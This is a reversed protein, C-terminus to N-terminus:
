GKRALTFYWIEMDLTTAERKPSSPFMELNKIHLFMKSDAIKEVMSRLGASSGSLSINIPRWELMFNSAPEAPKKDQVAAVPNQGPHWPRSAVSGVNLRRINCSTQKAVDMLQSRLNALSADDVTRGELTKLQALKENVRKEFTELGTVVLQASDIETLLAEKEDRGARIGDVLPMVLLLGVVFTGGTVILKRRKSECFRRLLQEIM